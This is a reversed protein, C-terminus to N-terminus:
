DDNKNKFLPLTKKKYKNRSQRLLEKAEGEDMFDVSGDDYIIKYKGGLTLSERIIAKVNLVM